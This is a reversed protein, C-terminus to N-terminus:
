MILPEHYKLTLLLGADTKGIINKCQGMCFEEMVYGRCKLTVIAASYLTDRHNGVGAKRLDIGDKIVNASFGAGIATALCARQDQVKIESLDAYKTPQFYKFAGMGVCLCFVMFGSLGIALNGEKSSRKM